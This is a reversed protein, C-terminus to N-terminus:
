QVSNSFNLTLNGKKIYFYIYNWVKITSKGNQVDYVDERLTELHTFYFVIM